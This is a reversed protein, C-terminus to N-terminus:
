VLRKGPDKLHERSRGRSPNTTTYRRASADPSLPRTIIDDATVKKHLKLHKIVRDVDAAAYKFRRFHKLAM